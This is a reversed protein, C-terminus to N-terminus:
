KSLHEKFIELVATAIKIEKQLGWISGKEASVYRVMNKARVYQIATQYLADFTIKKYNKLVEAKIDSASLAPSKKTVRITALNQCLDWMTEHSMEDQMKEKLEYAAPRATEWFEKLIDDLKREALDEHKFEAFGYIAKVSVFTTFESSIMNTLSMIIRLKSRKNHSNLILIEMKSPHGPEADSIRVFHQKSRRKNEIGRKYDRDTDFKKQDYRTDPQGALVNRITYEKNKHFWRLIEVTDLLKYNVSVNFSREPATAALNFDRNPFKIVDLFPVTTKKKEGKKPIETAIVTSM